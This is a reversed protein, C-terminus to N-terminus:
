PRSQVSHIKSLNFSTKVIFGKLLAFAWFKLCILSHFVHFSHLFRLLVASKTMSGTHLHFSIWLLWRMSINQYMYNQKNMWLERENLFCFCDQALTAPFHVKPTKEFVSNLSFTIIKVKSTNTCLIFLLFQAWGWHLFGTVSVPLTFIFFVFFDVYHVRVRVNAVFCLFVESPKVGLFVWFNVCRSIVKTLHVLCPFTEQAWYIM